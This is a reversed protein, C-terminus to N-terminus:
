PRHNDCRPGHLYMRVPTQGCHRKGNHHECPRHAGCTRCTARLKDNITACNTCRWIPFGTRKTHDTM